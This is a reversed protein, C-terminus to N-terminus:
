MPWDRTKRTSRTNRARRRCSLAQELSSVTSINLSEKAFRDFNEGFSNNIVTVSHLGILDNWKKYHLNFGIQTWIVSRTDRFAPYVYDVYDLRPLTYFAVRWSHKEKGM